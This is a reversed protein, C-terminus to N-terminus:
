AFFFSYFDDSYTPAFHHLSHNFLKLQSANGVSFRLLSKDYCVSVEVQKLTIKSVSKLATSNILWKM